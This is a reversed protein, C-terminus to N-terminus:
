KDKNYYYVFIKRDKITKLAKIKLLRLNINKKFPTVLKIIKCNQEAEQIIKNELMDCFIPNSNNYDVILLNKNELDASLLSDNIFSINKTKLFDFFESNALKDLLINSLKYMELMNEIGICEDFSYLLSLLFVIKGAGSAFNLCKVNKIQKIINDNIIDYIVNYDLDIYVNNEYDKNLYNERAIVSFDDVFFDNFLYSFCIFDSSDIEIDRNFSLLNKSNFM